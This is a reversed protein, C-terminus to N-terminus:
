TKVAVANQNMVNRALLAPNVGGRASAAMAANQNMQNNQAQQLMNVAASPGQGQSQAMLQNALASQQNTFQQQNGMTTKIANTRDDAGAMKDATAKYDTQQALFSM